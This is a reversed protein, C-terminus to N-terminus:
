FIMGNILNHTFTNYLRCAMYKAFQRIRMAQQTDLALFLCEDDDDDDDYRDHLQAV